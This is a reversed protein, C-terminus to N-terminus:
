RGARRREQNCGQSNKRFDARQKFHAIIPAADQEPIILSMPEEEGVDLIVEFHDTTRRRLVMILSEDFISDGSRFMRTM